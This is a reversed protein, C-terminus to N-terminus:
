HLMCVKSVIMWADWTHPNYFRFNCLCFSKICTSTGFVYFEVFILFNLKKTTKSLTHTHTHTHSLSLSLSLSLSPSFSLLAMWIIHSVKQCKEAGRGLNAIQCIKNLAKSSKSEQIIFYITFFTEKVSLCSEKLDQFANFNHKLFTFLSWTFYQRGRGGGM